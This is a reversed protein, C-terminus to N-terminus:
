PSQRFRLPCSQCKASLGGNISSHWSITGLCRPCIIEGYSKRTNNIEENILFVAVTYSDTVSVVDESFREKDKNWQNPDGISSKPIVDM